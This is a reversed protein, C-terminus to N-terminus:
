RGIIHPSIVFRSWSCKEGNTENELWMEKDRRLAAFASEQEVAM